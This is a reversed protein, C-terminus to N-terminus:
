LWNSRNLFQSKNNKFINKEKLIPRDDKFMYKDKNITTKWNDRQKLKRFHELQKKINEQRKEEYFRELERENSNKERQEALREARKEEILEKVRSNKHLLSSLLEKVGM